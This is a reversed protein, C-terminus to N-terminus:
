LVGKTSPVEGSTRTLAERLAKACSKFAAEARHHDNTGRLVDVHLSCKLTMALSQFFHTINECAWTGIMERELNLHIEPWPRGSLDIVTRALSEDLPAYAYGFRQIGTRKGLAGDIATGLALACDEATHHDDVHLDGDCKLQLDFGAHFALATLMHDLFGIGTEIEIIGSGDLNIALDIATEKTQRNSNWTRATENPSRQQLPSQTDEVAKTQAIGIAIKQSEFDVNCLRCLSQALQLYDGPRTPCTIRLQNKLLANATFKRVGVGDEALGKWIYDANKFEALIFNGQSGISTGGCQTVLERLLERYKKIQSVNNEMSSQFDALSQRALELSVSSIPFPGSSNRIIAAFEHDPAILYGVRLGALGWAKSFTRVIMINDDVTLQDLPNQDAFEIYAHDILLKAGVKKAAQNVAFIADTSVVRGTPNNPSTLVVLATQQDIQDIFQNVPFDGDLWPVCTMSGGHNRCYIDVMEFSPAHTVITKSAGQIANRIAREIGDDGGATVVIRGASVNCYQGLREQLEWHTPYNSILGHDLEALKDALNEIACNSENRSLQLTIKNQFEPTQYGENDSRKM